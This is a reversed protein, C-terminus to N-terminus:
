TAPSFNGLFTDINPSRSLAWAPSEMSAKSTLSANAEATSAHNPFRTGIGVPDIPQAAGNREAVGDASRAAAEEGIEDRREFFAAAAEAQLRHAFGAAPGVRRGDLPQLGNALLQPLCRRESAGCAKKM